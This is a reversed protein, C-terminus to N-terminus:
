PEYVDEVVETTGAVPRGPPTRPVDPDDEILDQDILTPRTPTGANIAQTTQYRAPYTTQQVGSAPYSRRTVRRGLWGYSRGPLLIGIVGIIMLVWGATHLNFFSTNTTVAFALIAGVAILAIGTGYKM